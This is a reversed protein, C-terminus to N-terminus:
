ETEAEEALTNIRIGFVENIVVIEGSAFHQENVFLDVPEGALRDLQIVSGENLELVERVTLETTGLQVKLAVKIDHLQEVPRASVKMTNVQELPKFRVKAISTDRKEADAFLKAIEEETLNRSM